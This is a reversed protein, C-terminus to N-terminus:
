EKVIIVPYGENEKENEKERIEWVNEELGTNLLDVFEQKKMDESSKSEGENNEENKLTGEIYYNNTFTVESSKNEGIIGAAYIINKDNIEIIGTNYNNSVTGRTDLHNNGLIGGVNYPTYHNEVVINGKNFCNRISITAADGINGCIGGLGSSLNLGLVNELNWCGEIEGSTQGVIGGAFNGSCNISGKNYSYKICGGAPSFGVIGGVGKEGSISGENGCGSITCDGYIDGVIGAVRLTKGEIMGYNYCKSLSSENKLHGVIGGLAQKDSNINGTNECNELSVKSAKGVIGGTLEFSSDVTGNNICGKVITGSIASGIIGGISTSNESNTQEILDGVKGNNTCNFISCNNGVLGAIGGVKSGKGQVTGYNTCNDVKATTAMNGVLGGAITGNSNDVGNGIVNGSNTCDRMESSIQGVLGGIAYYGGDKSVVTTNINHCNEMTVVLGAIGGMCNTGEVYSDKLTFDRISDARGFLGAFAVSDYDIYVGKIVHNNGEFKRIWCASSTGMPKWIEGKTLKGDTVRAGLDLDNELYVTTEATIELDGKEEETLTGCVFANLYKFEEATYIHWNKEEDIFPQAKSEGDWISIRGEEISGDEYVTITQNNRTVYYVDTLGNIEEITKNGTIGRELDEKLDSQEGKEKKIRREQFVLNAEEKLAELGTKGKSMTAQTLIGNEGTLTAISVAALILLVIITIVLAILTIGKMDEFKSKM